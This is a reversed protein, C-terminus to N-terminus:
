EPEFGERVRAALGREFHDMEQSTMFTRATAVLRDEPDLVITEDGPRLEQSCHTVFKAFVNKGQANYEASDETVRMEIRDSNGKLIRAGAEKLTFFGDYHRLSLIHEEDLHVNKIRGKNNKVYKLEGDTLLSGAREGFQYESITKVKMEDLSIKEGKILSELTEEGEWRLIDEVPDKERYDDLGILKETESPFISQAIPYTQDLELPIPGIPSSVLLNVPYDSLLSLEERLFRNYPKKDVDVDFLVAPGEVAPEHDNVIWDIMRKISPRWLTESGTYFIARHRSRPEYRELYKWGEKVAKLAELLKPHARVRREVLEWLSGDKIAQKVRKLENFSVWLNHEAILRKRKEEELRKLGDVGHTRCVPCLCDTEELGELNRTGSPYMMDERVAYKAYSSSDFFDCGLLAALSYLMPHGAGFLHVAGKGNLGKKAAMIIRVLDTFRYDEMLPVVGGIPYFLSDMKSLSEACGERLEPYISGQIPLAVHRESKGALKVAEEARSVTDDVKEEVLELPDDPETFRDLVTIIDSGIDHQFQVIEENSLEVEGYVHSQFTGSDTMIPKSFNLMEHLGKELAEEKLEDKTYIVYSNTILMQAGFEKELREPSILDLNPNIVPMMAPTEVTGHATQFECIRALGDRHKMEFM